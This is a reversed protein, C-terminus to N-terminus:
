LTERHNILNNRKKNGVQKFIKSINVFKEIIVTILEISEFFAAIGMSFM